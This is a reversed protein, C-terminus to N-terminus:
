RAPTSSTSSSVSVAVAGSRPRRNRRIAPVAWDLWVVHFIAAVPMALIGGIIGMLETGALFAVLVVLGPLDVASGMIRPVLLYNELQQIVIYLVLVAVFLGWGYFASVAVPPVAAIIPGIMPIFEGIGAILGFLFAYPMGLLLLAVTSVTGIVLGLFVTGLLWGQIKRAIKLTIDDWTQENEPSMLSLLHRRFAPGEMVMFISLVLVLFANLVGGFLGLAFGLISVVRNVYSGVDSSVEALIRQELDPLAPLNSNVGLRGLQSEAEAIYSPAQTALERLDRFVPPLLFWFAFVLGVLVALYIVLLGLPRPVGLKNLRSVPGQLGVALLMAVLVQTISDRLEFAFYIVAVVGFVICVAGFVLRWPSLAASREARVAAGDVPPQPPSPQSAPSRESPGRGRTSRDTPVRKGSRGFLLGFGLASALRTM